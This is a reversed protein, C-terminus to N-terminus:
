DKLSVAAAFEPAAAALDDHYGRLDHVTECLAEGRTELAAAQAEIDDEFRARADASAFIARVAGAAARTGLRAGELGIAKAEDILHEFTILYGVLAARGAPDLEVEDGDVLLRYDSTMRAAEAGDREFVIDGDDMEIHANIDYTSEDLSSCSAGTPGSAAMAPIATVAAFITAIFLTSRIM